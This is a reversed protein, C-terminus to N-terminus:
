ARVAAVARDREGRLRQVLDPEAELFSPHWQVHELRFALPDPELPATCPEVVVGFRGNDFPLGPAAQELFVREREGRSAHVLARHHCYPNNGRKDFFVHATWSCGGRCVTAHRCGQCFGWLHETGGSENFKLEPANYVIDRLRRQRINAGTYPRTPLSPCGKIAGDAEIGLTNIGADCGTWSATDSGYTRFLREYPGFYGVNNGARVQRGDALARSSLVGLMPYVDLLEYPQMLIHHNDSANGMPVTFQLQWAFFDVEAFLPYMLPLLPASRRNIQTNVSRKIGAAKLHGLTRLASAFSGPKGRLADHEAELGDVSVSVGRMGAAAMREATAASIGYGGTAMSCVMGCRTVEAAIELWDKRLFAEGGILTVESIGVEALQHVLDLAEATSLEDVRADGARSGCHSCALNCKLTIEWVAYAERPRTVPKLVESPREASM